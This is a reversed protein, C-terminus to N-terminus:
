RRYSGVVVVRTRVEGQLYLGSITAVGKAIRQATDLIARARELYGEEGIHVM